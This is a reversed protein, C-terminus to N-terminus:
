DDVKVIYDVADNVNTFVLTANRMAIDALNARARNLDKLEGDTVVQNNIVTGADVNNIVLVVKRGALICDAAGQMSDTAQTKSDIVFLLVDSNARAATEVAVLEDSSCGNVQPNYYSKGAATLAPIAVDFRWTTPDCSGGLFVDYTDIVTDNM